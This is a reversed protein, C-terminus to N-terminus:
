EETDPGSELSLDLEMKVADVPGEANAVIANIGGVEPAHDSAKHGLTGFRRELM